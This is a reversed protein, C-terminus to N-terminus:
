GPWSHPIRGNAHTVLTFFYSAGPIFARRYRM